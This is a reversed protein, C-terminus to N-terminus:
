VGVGGAGVVKSDGHSGGRADVGAVALEADGAAPTNLYLHVPQTYKPPHIYRM